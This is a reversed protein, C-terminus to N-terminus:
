FITSYMSLFETTYGEVLGRVTSNFNRIDGGPSRYLKTLLKFSVQTMYCCIVMNIFILMEFLHLNEVTSITLYYGVCVCGLYWPPKFLGVKTLGRQSYRASIFM